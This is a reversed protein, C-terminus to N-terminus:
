FADGLIDRLVRLHMETLACVSLCWFLSKRLFHRWSGHMPLTDFFFPLNFCSRESTFLFKHFVCFSSILLYIQEAKMFVLVQDM